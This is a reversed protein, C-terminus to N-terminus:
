DQRNGNKIKGLQKKALHIGLRQLPNNNGWPRWTRKYRNRYADFQQGWPAALINGRNLLLKVVQAAAMGACIECAIATSPGKKSNFDVAEPYVLYKRQLVAPALGILFRVFQEQEPHGELRFYDEFTMGGPVFNLVAAGMGLPAATIAPIQKRACVRFVERRAPIVFYDLGDVFLDVDALFDEVNNNDVGAPFTRIELGPNIDTAMEALVDVKDQGIRSVFAGAQRNFNALEFHDFDAIHFGGVGLRTLTLLHAGGVGGMGAIAIRKTALIEQESPTLWGINRSFATPYDFKITM